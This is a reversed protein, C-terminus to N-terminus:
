GVRSMDPIGSRACPALRPRRHPIFGHAHASTRRVRRPRVAARVPTRPRGGSATHAAAPVVVSSATTPM